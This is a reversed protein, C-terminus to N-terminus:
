IHEYAVDFANNYKGIQEFHWRRFKTRAEELLEGMEMPLQEILEDYLTAKTKNKTAVNEWDNTIQLTLVEVKGQAVKLERLLTKEKAVLLKQDKHHNEHANEVIAQQTNLEEELQHMVEEM